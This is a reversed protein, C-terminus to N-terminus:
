EFVVTGHVCGIPLIEGPAFLEIRSYYKGPPIEAPIRFTKSLVVEGEPIPCSEGSEELQECVDIEHKTITIPGVKVTMQIRTGVDLPQSLDGVVQITLDQGKIPPDPNAVISSPEFFSNDIGCNSLTPEDELIRQLSETSQISLALPAALTLVAFAILSVAEVKM